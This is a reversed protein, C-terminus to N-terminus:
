RSGFSLAYGYLNNADVYIIHNPEQKRDHSKLYKNSAKSHRNFVYSVGDRM